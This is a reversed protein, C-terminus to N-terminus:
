AVVEMSTEHPLAAFVLDVQSAIQDLRIEELVLDCQGALSPYIDSVRKGAYQRSTIATLRVRPHRILIRLLEVGAYGTAGLVAVRLGARSGSSVKKSSSKLTELM